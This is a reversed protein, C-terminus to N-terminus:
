RLIDFQWNDHQPSVQIFSRLWLARYIVVQSYRPNRQGRSLVHARAFLSLVRPIRDNHLGSSFINENERALSTQIFFMKKLGAAHRSVVRCLYITPQILRQVVQIECLFVILYLTLFQLGRFFM